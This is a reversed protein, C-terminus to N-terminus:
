AGDAVSPRIESFTEFPTYEADQKRHNLESNYDKNFFSFYVYSISILILVILGFRQSFNM